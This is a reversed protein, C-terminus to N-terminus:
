SQPTLLLSDQAAYRQVLNAPPLVAISHVILINYLNLFLAMREDRTLGSVDVRQLETTATIFQSFLKDRALAVYNISKGDPFMHKDYLELLVM